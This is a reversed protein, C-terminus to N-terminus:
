ILLTARMPASFALSLAEFVIFSTRSIIPNLCKQHQLFLFGFTLATEYEQLFIFLVLFQILNYYYM